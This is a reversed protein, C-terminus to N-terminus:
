TVTGRDLDPEYISCHPSAQDTPANGDFVYDNPVPCKQRDQQDQTHCDDWLGMLGLSKLILTEVTRM